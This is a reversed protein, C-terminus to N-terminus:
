AQPPFLHERLHTRLALLAPEPLIMQRPEFPQGDWIPYGFTPDDLFRPVLHWHLHPTRNGLCEYNFHDPRLVARLAAAARRLDDMFATFDAPPLAELATVHGGDYILVSYGRYRQDRHLYLTSRSLRAVELSHEFM